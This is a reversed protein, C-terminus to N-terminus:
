SLQVSAKYSLFVEEQANLHENQKSHVEPFTDDYYMQEKKQSRRDWATRWALIEKHSVENIYDTGMNPSMFNTAIQDLIRIEDNSFFDLDAEDSSKFIHQDDGNPEITFIPSRVSDIDEYLERPVPGRLMADYSLELAPKGTERLVAFDFLALYKFIYTKYAPCLVREEHNKIFFVIANDLKEKKYPIM